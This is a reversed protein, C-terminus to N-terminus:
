IEMFEVSSLNSECHVREFLPSSKYSNVLVSSKNYQYYNDPSTVDLLIPGSVVEKAVSLNNEKLRITRDWIIHNLEVSRRTLFNRRQFLSKSKQMLKPMKIKFNSM